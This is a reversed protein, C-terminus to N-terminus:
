GRKSFKERIRTKATDWESFTARGDKVAQETEALVEGHWQPSVIASEDRSLDEWLAEMVRLKEERTMSQLPLDIPM